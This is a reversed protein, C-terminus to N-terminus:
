MASSSLASDRPVHILNKQCIKLSERLCTLKNELKRRNRQVEESDSALRDLTYDDMQPVKDAPFINALDGILCSEVVLTAVNDVFTNMSIDYYANMCCIIESFEFSGVPERLIRTQTNRKKLDEEATDKDNTSQGKLSVVEKRVRTLERRYKAENMSKALKNNYSIPHYRTHPVLIEHLKIKAEANKSEMLPDVVETLIAISTKNDALSDFAAELFLKVARWVTQVHHEALTTWKASQERFLEGITHYNFVGSLERGTTAQSVMEIKRIFDERDVEEASAFQDSGPYNDFFGMASCRQSQAPGANLEGDETEDGRIVWRHGKSNMLGSFQDNLNQVVARLHRDYGENSYTDAFFPHLQDSWTGDIAAQALTQFRQAIGVLHVEKAQRSSREKGLKRLEAESKTIEQHIEGIIDPLSSAIREHLVRSLRLRLSDIGLSNQDEFNAWPEQKFFMTESADREAATQDLSRPDRNKLVHWGLKFQHTESENLALKRFTSTSEPGQQTLTDPKTIIGMTRKRDPDATTALSLVLQLAPDSQASVIALIISRPDNMYQNVMDRVNDVDKQTQDMNETHIIGPLDVITIPPWEPNCLQISLKDDFFPNASTTTSAEMMVHKASEVLSPVDEPKDYPQSGQFKELIGRARNDFIRSLGPIIYVPNQGSPVRRVILETAFTTCLNDKAPFPVHSIAELVSSKGSSQDGCVILQPLSVYNRLGRRTLEDIADLLESQGTYQLQQGVRSLDSRQTAQTESM